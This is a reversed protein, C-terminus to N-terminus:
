FLFIPQKLDNLIVYGVHPLFPQFLSHPFHNHGINLYEDLVRKGHGAIDFGHPPYKLNYFLSITDSLFLYTIIFSVILPFLLAIIANFIIVVCVFLM